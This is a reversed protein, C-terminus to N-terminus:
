ANYNKKYLSIKETKNMKSLNTPYRSQEKRNEQKRSPQNDHGTVLQVLMQRLQQREQDTMTEGNGLRNM